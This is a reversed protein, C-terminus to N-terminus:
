DMPRQVPATAQSNNAPRSVWLALWVLAPQLALRPIHYWLGLVPHASGLDLQAHHINAPFVAIAYLALAM